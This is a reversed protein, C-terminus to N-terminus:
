YYIEVLVNLASVEVKESVGLMAEVMEQDEWIDRNTFFKGFAREFKLARSVM